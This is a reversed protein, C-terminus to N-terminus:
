ALAKLIVDPTDTIIGNVGLLVLQRARTADNVTWTNVFKGADRVYAMKQEDIMSHHWHEAQYDQPNLVIQTDGALTEPSTLNGLPIEPAIHHLRRLIAPFFSSIIVREQMNHRKICDVVTHEITEAELDYAKVEVNVILSQGVAEFVEDLTPIRTGAFKPAFWSGADLAKLQDLTMEAVTGSGDSTADVTYDHVIVLEGDSSLHVDL